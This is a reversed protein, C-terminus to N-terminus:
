FCSFLAKRAESMLYFSGTIVIIEPENNPIALANTLARSVSTERIPSLTRFEKAIQEVTALRPHSEKILHVAHAIQEIQGIASSIEKDKSFGVIFRFRHDPYVDVLKQILRAFGHGNHAADLIVEKKRFHREFRCIPKASLGKEISEDSLFFHPKITKLAMRAIERNEIDYDVSRITSQFLPSKMESAMNEYLPAPTDPGIVVPTGKKIIGGKEKAIEEISSGLLDTHDFGISTIVAVLPHIVNTADWRGGLGTEIVAVDVNQERFFLFSLITAMEFFTLPISQTEVQYFLRSLEEHSIM